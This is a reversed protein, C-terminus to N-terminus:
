NMDDDDDDYEQERRHADEEDEEAEAEAEDADEYEDDRDADTSFLLSWDGDEFVFCEVLSPPKLRSVSISVFRSMGLMPYRPQPSM